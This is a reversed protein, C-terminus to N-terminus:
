SPRRPRGGKISISRIQKELRELRQELGALHGQLAAQNGAQDSLSVRLEEIGEALAVDVTRRHAEQHATFKRMIRRTVWTLRPMRSPGEISHVSDAKAILTPRPSVDAKKGSGSQLVRQAHDFRQRVFSAAPGIGHRQLIEERARNGTLAAQAPGDALKRMLKVAANLDPDAWLAGEPYPDCGAPVPTKTWPVLYSNDENMFDLNGSYGTAIVPKGLAMAEALTLGYGESRHLSVYCDCSAMLATNTEFDLYDDLVIIDPRGAAACKIREVELERHSGNIAKIVLTPGEGPTFASKFADVLGLPNKRELVSFLDFCFLFLFGEPLGLTKRDIRSTWSPADIPMPFVHVPKDTMRAIANRAFKSLTWVEDVYQLGELYYDPVDELEWAWLGINYRGQFFGDGVRKAFSSMQDGTVAVVNVNLDGREVEQIPHLQRSQTLDYVYAGVDVAASKAAKIALRGLEGLGLEARLYGAVCIGPTTHAPDAWFHPERRQRNRKAEPYLGLRPHMRGSRVSERAWGLLAEFSSGEPDPISARLEPLREHEWALFRPIRGTAMPSTLYDAFEEAGEPTFPDSPRKGKAIEERAWRVYYRRLTLDLPLGNPLRDYGYEPQRNSDYGEKTLLEAYDACLRALDFRESLLVRPHHGQDRSLLHPEHPDFGRFHFSRLPRHDVTYSQGDWSLHRDFLNWYGVNHTRDRLVHCGFLGPVLDIWRQDNRGHQDPNTPDSPESQELKVREWWYDLFDAAGDGVILFGPDYAGSGLISAEDVTRGDRPVPSTLYPALVIGHCRALEIVDDLRAFLRTDPDLFAAVQHRKRLERVVLPTLVRALQQRPFIAAMHDLDARPLPLDDVRWVEFPEQEPDVEHYLDDLILVTM